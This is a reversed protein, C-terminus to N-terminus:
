KGLIEELKKDLAELDLKEEPTDQAPAPKTYTPTVRPTYNGRPPINYQAMDEETILSRLIAPEIVLKKRLTNASEPTMSYTIWGFYAQREKKIPYSMQRKRPEDQRRIVGGNEQIVTALKAVIPSVEAETLSPSLLYAFEYNKTDSNM